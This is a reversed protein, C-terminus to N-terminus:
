VMYLALSFAMPRTDLGKPNPKLGCIERTTGKEGCTDLWVKVLHPLCFLTQFLNGCM